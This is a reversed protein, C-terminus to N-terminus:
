KQLMEKMSTWYHDIWGQKIDKYQEDPVGTQVFTLRTGGKVKKLNFTAKSYHGEPWDSGRWSQVIKKDRVLELNTGTCYGSYASFRGGVKRSINVADNTLKAHKRSDMLSEYVQHATAKITVSQRITKM